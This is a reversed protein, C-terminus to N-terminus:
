YPDRRRRSHSRLSSLSAAQLDVATKLLKRFRKKHILKLFRELRGEGEYKDRWFHFKVEATMHQSTRVRGKSDVEIPEDHFSVPDSSVSFGHKSRPKHSDRERHKHPKFSVKRRLTQWLPSKPKKGRRQKESDRDGEGGRKAKGLRFSKKSTKRELDRETTHMRSPSGLEELDALSHESPLQRISSKKSNEGDKDVDHSFDPRRRASRLSIESPNDQDADSDVEWLSPLSEHSPSPLLFTPQGLASGYRNSQIPNYSDM